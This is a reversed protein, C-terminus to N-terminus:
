FSNKGKIIGVHKALERYSPPADKPIFDEVLLADIDDARRASRLGKIQGVEDLYHKKLEEEDRPNDKLVEKIVARIWAADPVEEDVSAGFFKKVSSWIGYSFSFSHVRAIMLNRMFNKAVMKYNSTDYLHTSGQTLVIPNFVIGAYKNIKKLAVLSFDETRFDTKLAENLVGTPRDGSGMLWQMTAFKGHFGKRLSKFNLDGLRHYPEELTSKDPVDEGTLVDKIPIGSATGLWADWISRYIVTGDSQEVKVQAWDFLNMAMDPIKGIMGKLGSSRGKTGEKLVQLHARFKGTDDGAILGDEGLQLVFQGNRLAVYGESAYTGTVQMLSWAIWSAESGGCLKAITKDIFTNEEDGDIGDPDEYSAPINSHVTLGSRYGLKTEIKFTDTKRDADDTWKDLEGINDKVWQDYTCGQEKAMKAILFKAGPRKLFNEMKEKSGSNLMVLQCFVAKEIQDGLERAKEVSKPKDTSLESVSPLNFITELHEPKFKPTRGSRLYVVLNELGDRTEPNLRLGIQGDIVTRAALEMTAKEYTKAMEARKEPTGFNHVIEYRGGKKVKESYIAYSNYVSRRVVGRGTKSDYELLMKESELREPTIKLADRKETMRAFMNSVEYRNQLEQPVNGDDNRAIIRRLASFLEAPGEPFLVLETDVSERTSLEREWPNYPSAEEVGGVLDVVNRTAEQMWVPDTGIEFQKTDPMKGAPLDTRDGLSPITKMEGGPLTSADGVRFKAFDPMKGGPLGNDSNGHGERTM